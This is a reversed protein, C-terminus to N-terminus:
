DVEFVVVIGGIHGMCFLFWALWQFGALFVYAVAIFVFDEFVCIVEAWSSSLFPDPTKTAPPTPNSGVIV